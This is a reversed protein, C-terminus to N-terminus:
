MTIRRLAFQLIERGQLLTASDGTPDTRYAHLLVTDGIAFVLDLRETVDTAGDQIGWTELSKAMRGVIALIRERVWSMHHPEFLSTARLAVFGTEERYLRAYADFVRHAIDEVSTPSEDLAQLVYLDHRELMRVVAADVISRLDEFYVYLSGVPLGAREAVDTTTIAEPDSRERVLELLARLVDDVRDRSRQQRPIRRLGVPLESTGGGANAM